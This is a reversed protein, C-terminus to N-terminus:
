KGAQQYDKLLEQIILRNHPYIRMAKRNGNEWENHHKFCLININRPDHAMEPYAGRSLIHSCYVASYEHLPRMCEECYHGKNQWCYRYFRENEAPTHGKGFLRDQMMRRLNIDVHFNSNILPEFGKERAYEYCEIDEIRIMITLNFILTLYIEM